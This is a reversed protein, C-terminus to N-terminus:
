VETQTAYRKALATDAKYILSSRFRHFLTTVLEQLEFTVKVIMHYKYAKRFRLFDFLKKIKLNYKSEIKFIIQHKL